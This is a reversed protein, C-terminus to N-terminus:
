ERNPHVFSGEVMYRLTIRHTALLQNEKSVCLITEDPNTLTLVESDHSDVGFDLQDQSDQATPVQFLQVVFLV